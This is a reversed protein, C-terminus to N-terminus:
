RAQMSPESRGSSYRSRRLWLAAFLTLAAVVGGPHAPPHSLQCSSKTRTGHQSDVAEPGPEGDRGRDGQSAEEDEGSTTTPTEDGAGPEDGGDDEDSVTHAAESSPAARTAETTGADSAGITGADISSPKIGLRLLDVTYRQWQLSCAAREAEAVQSLDPARLDELAFLSEGLGAARLARLGSAVCAYSLEGTRGLCSVRATEALPSLQEDDFRALVGDLAVFRQGEKTEIPGAVTGARLLVHWREDEIRGLESMLTNTLLLAYSADGASRARVNAANTTLAVKSETPAGGALPLRQEVLRGSDLRLLTAAETTLAMDEWRQIDSWLVRLTDARVEIVEFLTGARLAWLGHQSAALTIVRGAAAPDPHRTVSGDSGLIFLGTSAGILAPGGPISLAPVAEEEGWLVPCVYRFGEPRRVALGENLRVVVPGQADSAVISLAQAPDGGHAHV